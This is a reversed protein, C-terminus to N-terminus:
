FTQTILGGFANATKSCVQVRVDFCACLSLTLKVSKLAELIFLYIFLVSVQGQHQM